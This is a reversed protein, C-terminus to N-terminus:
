MEDSLVRAIERIMTTKGVGPKGLVLISLIKVISATKKIM